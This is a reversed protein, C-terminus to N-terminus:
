RLVQIDSTRAAADAATFPLAEADGQRFELEPHLRSALTVMASSLDCGTARAGRRAAAAAVHGPGCAVDLVRM